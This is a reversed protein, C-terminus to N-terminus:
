TSELMYVNTGTNSDTRCARRFTLTQFWWLQETANHEHTQSDDSIKGKVIKLSWTDFSFCPATDLSHSPRRAQISNKPIHQM